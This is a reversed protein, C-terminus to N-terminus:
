LFRDSYIQSVDVVGARCWPFDMFVVANLRLNTDTPFRNIGNYYVEM